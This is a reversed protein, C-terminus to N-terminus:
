ILAIEYLIRLDYITYRYFWDFVYIERKIITSRLVYSEFEFFFFFNLYFFVELFLFIKFFSFFELILFFWLENWIQM